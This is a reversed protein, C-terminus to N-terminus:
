QKLLAALEEAVKDGVEVTTKDGKLDRTYFGADLVKRVAEEVACAEAEFGLSYRLLMAASLITAIPNAIGQGAIDPASGHIPEYVGLCKGQGDPLGNLSASPLLGLSGVIVSAEDSLIDGFMNETLVVGNLSSPRQVMAMACSDVLQHDFQLDPFEQEMTDTVTQRWLRSTALVNAKDVSHVKGVPSQKKALLAALRTIRQIEQRSYPMTDYAQGDEGAEKRDGFYIGGVLERVFVFDTGQVVHDKLPSLGTLKESAFSVPRLNAFLDLSKRLKLLGQEPRPGNEIKKNGPLGGVAGLLIADAAKCAELASDPLPEGTKEMADLGILEYQFEFEVGLVHSRHEAVVKLVKVAEAVIEPGVGDGPLCVISIKRPSMRHSKKIVLFLPSFLLFFFPVFIFSNRLAIFVVKIAKEKLETFSERLTALWDYTIM